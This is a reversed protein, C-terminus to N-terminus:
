KKIKNYIDLYDNITFLINNALSKISEPKPKQYFVEELDSFSPKYSSDNSFFLVKNDFYQINLSNNFKARVNLLHQMASPSLNYYPNKNDPAYVKFAKNFENSELKSTTSLTPGFESNADYIQLAEHKLKAEIIVGSFNESTASDDNKKIDFYIYWIKQGQYVGEYINKAIPTFSYSIKFNMNPDNNSSRKFGLSEFAKPYIINKYRSSLIYWSITGVIYLLGFFYAILDMPDPPTIM